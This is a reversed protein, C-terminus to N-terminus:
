GIYDSLGAVLADFVAKCRPSARLDEHMTVWTDLSLEFHAPLVRVLAPDRRTLQTQCVGIGCGARIMALQALDSDSRIALRVRTWQPVQTLAARAGRIFPTDEDHGILLHQELDSPARPTGHRALYDAHAHLGLVIRGVRRAVLQDQRPQTMRVAIDAERHLLDQVRNTLVLELKLATYDVQMSRVIAPLAEVGIVDSVSIRVVGQVGAGHSEAARRLSAATHYMAEAHPQLALAAETPTLGNQSRTFLALALATELAQVHRGVTPQTIALARAAGSLSGERLVALFTRYLEWGIDAGDAM